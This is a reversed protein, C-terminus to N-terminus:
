GPERQGDVQVAAVVVVRQRDGVGRWILHRRKLAAEDGRGGRGEAILAALGVPIM